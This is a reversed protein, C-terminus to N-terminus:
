NRQRGARPAAVRPAQRRALSLQHVKQQWAQLERDGPRRSLCWRVHPAADELRGAKAYASALCRRTAYCPNAAAAAREAHEIAVAHRGLDQEILSALRWAPECCAAPGQDGPPQQAALEAAYDAIARLDAPRSQQRYYAHVATLSQWGPSFEALYAEAPTLPAVQTLIRLRHVGPLRHARKWLRTAREADGAVIAQRGAEFLVNGDNPRLKVAQQMLEPTRRWAPPSLFTLNALYGYADGQLPALRAAAMAHGHADTLRKANDGLARRLWRRTQPQDAFNSALAADRIATLGLPNASQQQMLEFQQMQRGALRLHARAHGPYRAVTQKLADIMRTLLLANGQAEADTPQPGRQLQRAVLTRQQASAHLYRDWALSARAPQWLLAVSLTAALTLVGPAVGTLWGRPDAHSCDAAVQERSSHPSVDRADALRLRHLRYAAAALLVTVAMCSPVYWAFDVLAHAASAVLSATIAAWPGAHRAGVATFVGQVCWWGVLLGAAALLVGGALGAETTTHLYGSEAHTFNLDIGEAIFAPYVDAHSGVGYGLWPNARLAALNAAWVAPRRGSGTLVRPTPAATDSLRRAVRDLDGLSVAMLAAAALGAAGLLTPSRWRLRGHRRLAFLGAAAAVGLMAIGGRSVSLVVAAVVLVAAAAWLWPHSLWRNSLSSSSLSSNSLPRNFLSPNSLSPAPPRSPLNARAAKASPKARRTAWAPPAPEGARGQRANHLCLLIPGLGLVLFHAFHNRNAFSGQVESGIARQPHTYFWMLKGNSTLWQLLGFAAMGAAALAIAALLRRIDAESRLREGAVTFLLAHCVLVALGVATAHPTASLTPWAVQPPLLEVLGPSLVGIVAPPLPVIQLGVLAVAAVLVAHAATFQVARQGLLWCRAIWALTAIAVPAAYLLRGLDHRGGFWLPAVFLCAALGADTVRCAGAALREQSVAPWRHM